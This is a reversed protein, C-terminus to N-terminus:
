VVWTSGVRPRGELSRLYLYTQVPLDAFPPLLAIPVREYLKEATGELIDLTRLCDADVEWLEGTVGAPADAARVMGPFGNLGYLTFGPPTAANGVFRQGTLHVHNEGGRKLTGYVFLRTM